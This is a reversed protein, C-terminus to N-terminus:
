QPASFFAALRTRLGQIHREHDVHEAAVSLSPRLGRGRAKRGRLPSKLRPGLRTRKLEQLCFAVDFTAHLLLAKPFFAPPAEAEAPGSAPSSIHPTKPNKHKRLFENWQVLDPNSKEPLNLKQLAVLDLKEELMLNPVDYITSADISQIVADKKVNCFLAM